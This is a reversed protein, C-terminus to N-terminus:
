YLEIVERGSALPADCNPCRAQVQIAIRHPSVLSVIGEIWSVLRCEVSKKCNSCYYGVTEEEGM